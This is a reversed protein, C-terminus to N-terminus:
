AAADLLAEPAFPRTERDLRPDLAELRPGIREIAAAWTPDDLQEIVRAFAEATPRTHLHHRYLRAASRLMPLYPSLETTTSAAESDIWAIPVSAISRRQSLETRLLLELDFAFGRERPSASLAAATRAHMAKFGCQTDELYALEPLLQKWLYIFLRGRASRGAGKVVVSQKARRSGAALRIGPRALADLLLGTQGLHTSLDADTYLVVHGPRIVQTAAFLGLQVAGGKRSEDTSHLGSVVPLRQKLADRLYLVRAEAARHRSALIEEALAGSGNPCGDDVVLLEFRSRARPGILWDLQRLKRDLFGEGLPHEHPRLIREHEGYVPLVVSLHLPGDLAALRAKSRALKVAVHATLPWDDPTAALLCEMAELAQDGDVRSLLADATALLSDLQVEDRLDLTPPLRDFLRLSARYLPGTSSDTPQTPGM